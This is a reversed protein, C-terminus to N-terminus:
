PSRIGGDLHVTTTRGATIVVPVTVLGHGNANAIIRYTGPPLTVPTPANFVGRTENRVTQLLQGNNRCLQYDSHSRQYPIEHYIQPGAEFASFVLLEGNAGVTRSQAPDPGVPALTLGPKASACGSLAAAAIIIATSLLIKM